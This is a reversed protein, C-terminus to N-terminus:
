KIKKAPNGVWIEHDPIDKLVVSGAGVTVHNGIKVGQKVVANAGIFSNEGIYVNGALVAGPAIHVGNELTCEHEIICGTNLICHNGMKAFANMSVQAAIFNGIGITSYDSISATPHIVNLISKGNSLVWKASNQRIENDGIGLIFEDMTSWDFDKSTENGIYQIEFPNFSVPNREAFYNVQMGMQKATDLVVLAHGSYGIIAINKKDQM